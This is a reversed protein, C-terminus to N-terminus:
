GWAPRPNLPSATKTIKGDLSEFAGPRWLWLSAGWNGAYYRM